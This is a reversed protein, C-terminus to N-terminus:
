TMCRLNICHEIDIVNLLVLLPLILTKILTKDKSLFGEASKLISFSSILDITQWAKGCMQDLILSASKGLTVHSTPTSSPGSSGSCLTPDLLREEPSLLEPGEPTPPPFFSFLLCTTWSREGRRGQRAEAGARAPGELGLSSLGHQVQWLCRDPALSHWFSADEKASGLHRDQQLAAEPPSLPLGACRMPDGHLECAIM